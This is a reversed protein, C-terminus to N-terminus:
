WIGCLFVQQKDGQERNGQKGVAREGDGAFRTENDDNGLIELGPLFTSRAVFSAVIFHWILLFQFFSWGALPM